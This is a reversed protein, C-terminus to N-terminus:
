GDADRAFLFHATHRLRSASPLAEMPLPGTQGLVRGVYPARYVLRYGAKGVVGVLEDENLLWHPIRSGYYNQITVATAIDGAFVDSLLIAAPRLAAFRGILGPWDEIYQLVSGAHILDYDGTGPLGTLFRPAPMGDYLPAAAACVSPLEVIDFAVRDAAARMSARLSLFGAAGFGGGFDLIALRHRAALLSAAVVPLLYARERVVEPVDGTAELAARADRFADRNRASWTDGAFGPGDALAAAFSPYLGEWVHFGSM